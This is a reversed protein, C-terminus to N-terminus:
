TFCAHLYLMKWEREKKKYVYVCGKGLVSYRFTLVNEGLCVPSSVNEDAM